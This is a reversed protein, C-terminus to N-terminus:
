NSCFIPLNNFQARRFKSINAWRTHFQDSSKELNRKRTRKGSKKTSILRAATYRPVGNFKFIKFAQNYSWFIVSIIKLNFSYPSLDESRRNSTFLFNFSNFVEFNKSKTRLKQMAFLWINLLIWWSTASFTFFTFNTDKETSCFKFFTSHSM